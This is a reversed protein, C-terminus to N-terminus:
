VHSSAPHHPSTFIPMPLSPTLIHGQIVFAANNGTVTSKPHSLHLHILPDLYSTRYYVDHADLALFIM